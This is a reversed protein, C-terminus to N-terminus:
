QSTALYAVLNRLDRLPLNAGQPPMISVPASRKAITTKVVKLEPAGVPRLVLETDNESALAGSVVAGDTLTLNVVGFGEAIEKGPDTLALLLRDRDLRTAIGALNPGVTHPARLGGAGPQHPRGRPVRDEPEVRPAAEIDDALAEDVGRRCQRVM